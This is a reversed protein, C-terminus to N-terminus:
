IEEVLVDTELQPQDAAASEDKDGHSFEFLPDLLLRGPRELALTRGVPPHTRRRAPVNRTNVDAVRARARRPRAALAVARRAVLCVSPAPAVVRADALRERRERSRPAPADVSLLPEPFPLQTGRGSLGDPLGALGQDRPHLVARDALAAALGVFRGRDARVFLREPVVDIGLQSPVLKRIHEEGVELVQHVVERSVAQVAARDPVRDVWQAHDIPAVAVRDRNVGRRPELKGGEAVLRLPDNGRVHRYLHDVGELLPVSSQSGRGEVRPKAVALQLRKADLADLQEGLSAPAQDVDELAPVFHLPSLIGLARGARPRHGDTLLEVLNELIM